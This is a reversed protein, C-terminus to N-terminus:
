RHAMLHSLEKPEDSSVRPHGFSNPITRILPTSPPSVARGTGHRQCAVAISNDAGIYVLSPLSLVTLLSPAQRRHM